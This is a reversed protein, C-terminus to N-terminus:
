PELTLLRATLRHQPARRRHRQDDAPRPPPDRASGSRRASPTPAPRAVAVQLESLSDVYPNRLAISRQLAPMADLLHDRGTMRLLAPADARVGGRMRSGSRPPGIARPWGPTASRAVRDVGQRPDGRRQRPPSPLAMTGYLAAPRDARCGRSRRRTPRWRRAWATGPRCTPASRRGPSSGPSRGCRRSRARGAGGRRGPTAARPRPDRDSDSARSRSSPRTARPLVGGLDPDDWFSRGTPTGRTAALEDMVTPARARGGAAAGTTSPRRPSCSRRRGDARPGAPRDRPNAYRTAIM